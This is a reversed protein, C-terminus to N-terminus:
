GFCSWSGFPGVSALLVGVAVNGVVRSNGGMVLHAPSGAVDGIIGVTLPVAVVGLGTGMSDEM